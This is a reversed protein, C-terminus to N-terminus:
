AAFRANVLYGPANLRTRAVRIIVGDRYSAIASGENHGVEPNGLLQAFVDSNAAADIRSKGVAKLAADIANLM